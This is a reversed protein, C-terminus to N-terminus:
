QEYSYFAIVKKEEDIKYTLDFLQCFDEVTVGVCFSAQVNHDDDCTVYPLELPTGNKTVKFFMIENDQFYTQMEWTNEGITWKSMCKNEKRATDYLGNQGYVYERNILPFSMNESILGIDIVMMYSNLSDSYWCYKYDDTTLGLTSYPNDQCDYLMEEGDLTITRIMSVHKSALYSQPIDSGVSIKGDVYLQAYTNALREYLEERTNQGSIGISAVRIKPNYSDAPADTDQWIVGISSLPNQVLFDKTKHYKEEPAYVTDADLIIDIVADIDSFSNIKFSRDSASYLEHSNLFKDLAEEYQAHVENVYTCSIDRTYFPTETADISMPALYSNAKFYLDREKTKFTYEMNDPNEKILEKEVLTYPEDCVSNVYDFVEKQGYISSDATLCGSMMAATLFLILATMIKKM